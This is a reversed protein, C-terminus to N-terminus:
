CKCLKGIIVNNLFGDLLIWEKGVITIIWSQVLEIEVKSHIWNCLVKSSM